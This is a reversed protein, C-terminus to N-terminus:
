NFLQTLLQMGGVFIDQLLHVKLIPNSTLTSQPLWSGYNKEASEGVKTLSWSNGSSSRVLTPCAALNPLSSSISPKWFRTSPLFGALWSIHYFGNSVPNWVHQTTCSKKWWCYTPSRGKEDLIAWRARWTRCTFDARDAGDQGKGELHQFRAWCIKTSAM